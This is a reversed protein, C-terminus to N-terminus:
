KTGNRKIYDLTDKMVACSEQQVRAMERIGDDISKLTPQITTPFYWLPRGDDDTKDHAAELKTMRELAQQIYPHQENHYKEIRLCTTHVDHCLQTMPSSGNGNKYAGIKDLMREGLKVLAMSLGVVGGIVTATGVDIM